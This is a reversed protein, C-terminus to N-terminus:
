ASREEARQSAKIDMLNQLQRVQEELDDLRDADTCTFRMTDRHESRETLTDLEVQDHPALLEYGSCRGENIRDFRDELVEVARDSFMNWASIDLLDICFLFKEGAQRYREANKLNTVEDIRQTITENM